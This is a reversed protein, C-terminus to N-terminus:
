VSFFCSQELDQFIRVKECVSMYESQRLDNLRKLLINLKFIQECIELARERNFSSATKNTNISAGREQKRQLYRDVDGLWIINEFIEGLRFHKRIFSGEFALKEYGLDRLFPCQDITELLFVDDVVNAM